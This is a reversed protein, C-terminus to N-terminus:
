RMEIREGVTGFLVDFLRSQKCYNKGSKGFRHHLDHDEICLEFGFPKMVPGLLPSPLDARIGSHGLSETYLAYCMTLYHESFSLPVLLSALLPIIFVELYEQKTDALIALFPSPHKATHHQAHIAWIWDVEHALRHWVYFFYDLSLLWLCAKLPSLWSLTSLPGISITPDYSFYFPLATRVVLYAAIGIALQRVSRDPIRDRSVNKEDLTGYRLAHRHLRRPILLSFVLFGTFYFPYALTISPAQHSAFSHWLQHLLLPLGGYFLVFAHERLKSPTPIPGRDLSEATLTHLEAPALALSCVLEDVTMQSRAKEHLTSPPRRDVKQRTTRLSKTADKPPDGLRYSDSSDFTSSASSDSGRRLSSSSASALIDLMSSSYM